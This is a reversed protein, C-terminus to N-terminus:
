DPPARALRAAWWGTEQLQECFRLRPHERMPEWFSLGLCAFVLGLLSFGLAPPGEQLAETKASEQTRSEQATGMLAEARDKEGLERDEARRGVVGRSTKKGAQCVKGTCDKSPLRPRSGSGNPPCPKAPM